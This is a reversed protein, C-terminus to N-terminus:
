PERCRAGVVPAHLCLMRGLAPADCGVAASKGDSGSLPPEGSVSGPECKAMNVIHVASELGITGSLELASLSDAPVGVASYLHAVVAEAGGGGVAVCPGSRMPAICLGAPM